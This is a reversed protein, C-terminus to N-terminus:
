YKYRFINFNKWKYKREDKIQIQCNKLIGNMNLILDEKKNKYEYIIRKIKEFTIKRIDETIDNQM